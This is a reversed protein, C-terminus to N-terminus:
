QLPKIEILDPYAKKMIPELLEWEEEDWWDLFYWEGNDKIALKYGKEQEIQSNQKVKRSVIMPIFVYERGIATKGTQLRDFDFDMSLFEDYNAELVSMQVATRVWEDITKNEAQALQELLKPPAIKYPAGWDQKKFAENLTTLKTEIIGREGVNLEIASVSFAWLSLMFLLYKRM